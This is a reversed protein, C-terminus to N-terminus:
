EIVCGALCDRPTPPRVQNLIIGFWIGQIGLDCYQTVIGLYGILVIFNICHTRTLYAVDGVGILVGEVVLVISSLVQGLGM